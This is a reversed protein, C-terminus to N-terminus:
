RREYVIEGERLASGVVNGRAHSGFLLIRAPQFRAVIREVTTAVIVPNTVTRGQVPQAFNNTRCQNLQDRNDGLVGIGVTASPLM